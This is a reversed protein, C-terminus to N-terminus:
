LPVIPPCLNFLACSVFVIEDLIPQEGGTSLLTIPLVNHLIRFKQRVTGIVREVHIRVHAIERTSELDVPHLQSKGKTFAPIKVQAGFIEIFDKILFGRDALVMDGPLLNKIFSSNETLFKDSVRGGWGESIFCVSGQPTIGILYKITQSHKYNSWSQASTLMNYPKQTKIEFCDIIVTTNDLNQFSEKFCAPMTKKLVTREPWIVLSKFKLCMIHVTNKFYSSATAQSIGFRYALDKFDLNLRLKVLTLLFQESAPLVTNGSIKIYPEIINLVIKFVEYTNLGTYYLTKSDDKEISACCLIRKESKQLQENCKNISLNIDTLDAMTLDTVIGKCIETSESIDQEVLIEQCTGADM